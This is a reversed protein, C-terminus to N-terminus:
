ASQAYHASPGSGIPGRAGTAGIWRTARRRSAALFCFAAGGIAPARRRSCSRLTQRGSAASASSRTRTPGPRSTPPATRRSSRPSSAFVSGGTVGIQQTAISKTGNAKNTAGAALIATDSMVTFSNAKGIEQLALSDAGNAENRAGPAMITMNKMQGGAAGVGIEQKAIARAGNATNTSGQAHIVVSTLKGASGNGQAYGINQTAKAGDGQAINRAGRAYIQSQSIWTYRNGEAVGITQKAQSSAGGAENHADDADIVSGVITGAM